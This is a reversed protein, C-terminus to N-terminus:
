GLADSWEPCFEHVAEFTIFTWDNQVKPLEADSLGASKSVTIAYQIVQSTDGDSRNLIDCVARAQDLLQLDTWGAISLHPRVDRLYADTDAERREPQGRDILAGVVVLVLVVRPM